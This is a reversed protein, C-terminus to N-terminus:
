KKKSTQKKKKKKREKEKEREKERKVEKKFADIISDLSVNLEEPKTDYIINLSKPNILVSYPLNSIGYRKVVNNDWIKLDCVNDGLITDTLVKQRWQATDYDLSINLMMLSDRRHKETLSSMKKIHECSLSDWSAWFNIVLFKNKYRTNLIKTSDDIATFNFSPLSSYIVTSASRKNELLEQVYKIYDDDQLKGGLNNLIERINRNNPSSTEVLYRRLLMINVENMPNKRVFSDIEEYHRSAPFKELHAAISDYAYQLKGGIICWKKKQVSDPLSQQISDTLHQQISDPLRQEISDTLNQQVSDPLSQQISDSLNQQISDSSNIQTTDPFITAELTPEAYLVLAEGTPMLLSLPFVTDAYIEHRFNGDKDALITDMYEYRSDLGYLYLTDGSAVGSGNIRYYHINNETCSTFLVLLISVITAINRM